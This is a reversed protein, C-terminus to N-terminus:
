DLLHESRNRAAQYCEQTAARNTAHLSRFSQACNAHQSNPRTLRDLEGAADDRERQDGTRQLELYPWMARILNCRDVILENRLNLGFLDIIIRGRRLQHGELDRPQALFGRFGILAEPAVDDTGVPNVLFPQESQNLQHVNHGDTGRPGAVPFFTRKNDHNCTKCSVLYNLCDYALWPYGGDMDEGTEFEYRLEPTEPWRTVRRKPRFHELDYERRGGWTQGSADAGAHRQPRPMWRECYGCKFHQIRVFVDKIDRWAPEEGSEAKDLWDRDHERIRRRLERPDVRCGIM